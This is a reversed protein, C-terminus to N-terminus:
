VSFFFKYPHCVDGLTEINTILRLREEGLGALIAGM